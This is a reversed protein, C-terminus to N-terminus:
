PRHIFQPNCERRVNWIAPLSGPFAPEANPPQQFETPFPPAPKLPIRVSYTLTPQRASSATWRPKRSACWCCGTVGTRRLGNLRASTPSSISPHCCAWRGSPSQSAKTWRSISMFNEGPRFDWDRPFVTYGAAELHWAIWAAWERENKNFSVFFDRVDPRFEKDIEGAEVQLSSANLVNIAPNVLQTWVQGAPEGRALAERARSVLSNAQRRATAPDPIDGYSSIGDEVGLRLVFWSELDPVAATLRDAFEHSMWWIQHLPLDALAERLLSVGSLAKELEQPPEVVSLTWPVSVLGRPVAELLERVQSALRRPAVRDPLKIEVASDPAVAAKLLEWTARRAADSSYTVRALGTRSDRVWRIIREAAQAPSM